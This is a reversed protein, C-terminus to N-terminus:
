DVRRGCDQITPWVAVIVVISLPATSHHCFREPIVDAGM